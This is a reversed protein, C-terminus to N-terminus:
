LHPLLVLSLAREVGLVKGLVVVDKGEIADVHDAHDEEGGTETM